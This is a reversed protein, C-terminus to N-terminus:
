TIIIITFYFEFICIRINYTRGKQSETLFFVFITFRTDNNEISNYKLTYLACSSYEELCKRKCEEKELQGTTINILRFEEGVFGEKEFCDGASVLHISQDSLIM